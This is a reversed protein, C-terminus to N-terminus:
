VCTFGGDVLVDTGTTFGSEPDALYKIAGFLEEPAGMRSMIGQKAWSNRLEEPTATSMETGIYGPSITNVRIGHQVWEVEFSKSLHVVGAKSANYACQRQPINIISASMSAMNIISGKVGKEIMLKAAMRSTLFTGTLNIDIVYNWDEISTEFADQHKCVGANNFAIDIRGVKESLESGLREVQSIDSVDAQMAWAQVGYDKTLHTSVQEAEQLNRSIIAM